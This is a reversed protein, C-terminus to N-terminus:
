DTVQDQVESVYGVVLHGNELLIPYAYSEKMSPSNYFDQKQLFPDAFHILVLLILLFKIAGFLAGLIRNIWGLAVLKLLKTLAKAILTIILTTSIFILAYSLAKTGAGAEDIYNSLFVFVPQSFHYALFIGAVLSLLSALENILGKYLGRALGFLLPTILVIDLLNM